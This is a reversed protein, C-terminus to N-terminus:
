NEVHMKCLAYVQEGDLRQIGYQLLVEKEGREREREDRREEILKSELIQRENSPLLLVKCVEKISYLM